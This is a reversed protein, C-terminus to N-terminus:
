VRRVVTARHRANAAHTAYALLYRARTKPAVSASVLAAGRHEGTVAAPCGARVASDSLRAPQQARGM